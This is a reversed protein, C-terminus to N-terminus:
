GEPMSCLEWSDEWSCISSMSCPSRRSAYVKIGNDLKYLALYQGLALFRQQNRTQAVANESMSKQLEALRIGADIAGGAYVVQQAELAFSNGFHPQSFGKVNGFDRDTMVVNGNYSLQLSAGVDPLRKSKAEEIGRASVDVGSKQMRLTKSGSEVLTFLEGITIKRQPTQATAHQAMMMAVVACCIIRRKM